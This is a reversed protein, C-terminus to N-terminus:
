HGYRTGAAKWNAASITEIIMYKRRKIKKPSCLVINIM